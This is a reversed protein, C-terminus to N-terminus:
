EAEQIQEASDPSITSRLHLDRQPYPIEIGEDHFKKWVSLLLASIVNGRGNMPDNIWFRMELDVSSDSFNTLLCVPEPDALIRTTEAMAQKCLEIAKEIDSKYHVGVVKHLRLLNHSHTWNEVRTTILEENPILHEIGDRTLVSVFRANLANVSGYEGALAIVDGPKISKDALLIFGSVLNAFIKQLGFGLGVGIAGGLVAFATLDIGVVSLAFLFAFIALAIRLVKASLVQISPTLNPSRKIRSELLQGILATLWLLIALSVIGQFIGLASIKVEGLTFAIKEMYVAADDLLGVISLAAIFWATVGIVRSGLPNAVFVTVINIVIWAGLLTSVVVITADRYGLKTMLMGFGVQIVLWVIPFSVQSLTVWFRRLIAYRAQRQGLESFKRRLVIALPWAILAALAVVGFEVLTERSALTTNFWLELDTIWAKLVSTDTLSNATSSM